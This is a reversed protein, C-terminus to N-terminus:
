THSKKLVLYRGRMTEHANIASVRKRNGRPNNEPALIQPVAIYKRYPEGAETALTRAIKRLKKAQKANM